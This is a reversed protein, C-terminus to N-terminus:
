AKDLGLAIRTGGPMGVLLLKKVPTTFRPWLENGVTLLFIEHVNKVGAEFADTLKELLVDDPTIQDLAALQGWTGPLQGHVIASMKSYWAEFNGPQGLLAASKQYSVTHIKHFQLIDSKAVFFKAERSLTTLEVLHTRFYTYYLATEGVTRIAAAAPKYLALGAALAVYFGAQQMEHVFSIAPNGRDASVLEKAWLALRLNAAAIREVVSTSTLFNRVHENWDVASIAAALHDAPKDTRM